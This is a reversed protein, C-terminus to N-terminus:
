LLAPVVFSERFSKTGTLDLCVSEVLSRFALTAEDVSVTEMRMSRVKGIKGVEM